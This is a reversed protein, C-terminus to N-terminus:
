LWLDCNGNPIHYMHLTGGIRTRIPEFVGYGRFCPAGWFERRLGGVGAKSKGPSAPDHFCGVEM